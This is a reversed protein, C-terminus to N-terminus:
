TLREGALTPPPRPRSARVGFLIGVTVLALGFALNWHLPEGLFVVAGLASLGPVLATIMTSRVPGFHQIMRTFTIGSIAESGVGQFVMHFLVESLPAAMFRGPVWELLLLTGYVPVFTFFAFATIAITARVADLAYHRVTVSYAAWCMAATMFLVDGKWVTGGDFARLLSAGGVLLDGGVICLLGMARAPTIRDGLLLAALLTTWLPLSGPMLVSAHAAPAHVFGSYALMAYVLGGFVGATATMRLPLPSFGFFSAQAAPLHSAQDRHTLWWGWPLLVLSAGLIRCLAIDFPSLTGGRAPDSTARAIVIFSTWIVVTVFASLLGVARPSLGKLRHMLLNDASARRALKM